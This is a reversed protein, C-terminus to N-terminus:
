NVNVNFCRDRLDFISQMGNNLYHGIKKKIYMDTTIFDESRCFGKNNFINSTFNFFHVSFLAVYNTQLFVLIVTM